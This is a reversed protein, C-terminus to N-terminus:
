GRTREVTLGVSAANRVAGPKEVRLRVRSAPFERLLTDALHSALTEVLRFEGQITLEALRRAVQKYDLAQELDDTKAAAAIDCDMEVDLTIEQLVEREWDFAGLVAEVKLGRIHVTAAGTM